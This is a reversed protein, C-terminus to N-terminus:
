FYESCLVLLSMIPFFSPPEVDVGFYKTARKRDYGGHAAKAPVTFPPKNGKVDMLWTFLRAYSINSVLNKCLVEEQIM